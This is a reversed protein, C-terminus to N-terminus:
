CTHKDIGHILIYIMLLHNPKLLDSEEGICYNDVLLDNFLLIMFVKRWLKFLVHLDHLM